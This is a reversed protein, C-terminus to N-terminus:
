SKMLLIQLQDIVQDVMRAVSELAVNNKQLTELTGLVQSEKKLFTYCLFVNFLMSILLAINEATILKVLIPIATDM